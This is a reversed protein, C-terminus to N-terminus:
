GSLCSLMSKGLAKTLALLEGHCVKSSFFNFEKETKQVSMTQLCGSGRSTSFM